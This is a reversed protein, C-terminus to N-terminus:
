YLLKHHARAFIMALSIFALIVSLTIPILLRKKKILQERPIMVYFGYIYSPIILTMILSTQMTMKWITTAIYILSFVILSFVSAGIDWKNKLESIEKQNDQRESTVPSGRYGLISFIGFITNSIILNVLLFEPFALSSRYPLFTQIAILFTPVFVFLSLHIRLREALREKLGLMLTAGLLYYCAIIPLLFQLIALLLASTSRQITFSVENPGIYGIPIM